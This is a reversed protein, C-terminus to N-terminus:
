GRSEKLKKKDDISVRYSDCIKGIAKNLTFNDLNNNLLFPYTKDRQKIFCVSIVWANAMQVYYNDSKINNCISLIKDINEDNIFYSLIIVLGFRIAFPDKDNIYKLVVDFDMKKFIKLNSVTIDNTAWNNNFPLFDDILKLIEDCPLKLYGIVLGHLVCEEYYVHKNQKFFSLYDGKSIEKAIKKLIPTRVGIINDKVLSSHFNKYKLDANEKLYSILKDYDMYDSSEM